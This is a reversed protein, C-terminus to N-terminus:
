REDTGTFVDFGHLSAEKYVPELYTALNEKARWFPLNGLRKPLAASVPPIRVNDWLETTSSGTGHWFIAADTALPEVSSLEASESSQSADPSEAPEFSEEALLRLFGERDLGRLKFILFPDRDFAEGLLYYVAAVHKCPNSWDPCSCATELDRLKEPFLSLDVNEFAHEIEQPMEGAFLKAAVIIQDGLSSALRKWDEAAIGKVKINIEYPEYRSGQVRADVKGEAIEISIVQGKRAYSRGRRLRTGIDFSELVAIWRKAWWSEGFRGRKSQSKIGGKVNIPRSPEFFPYDGFRM